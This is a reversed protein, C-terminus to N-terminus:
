GNAGNINWFVVLLKVHLIRRSILTCPSVLM